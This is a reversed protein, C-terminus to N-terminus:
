ETRGYNQTFIALDGDGIANDEDLDFAPEFGGQDVLTGWVRGLAALDVFDVVGDGTFDALIGTVSLEFSLEATEILVPRDPGENLSVQVSVRTRGSPASSRVRLPVRVLLGSLQAADTPAAFAWSIRFSDEQQSVQETRNDPLGDVQHPLMKFVKPDLSVQVEGQTIERAGLDVTVGIPVQDGRQVTEPPPPELSLRVSSASLNLITVEGLVWAPEQRAAFGGVTFTVTKGTFSVGSPQVVNIAYNGRSTTTEAIVEGDITVTVVTGDPPTAGDISAAGFFRHPPTQASAEMPPLMTALVVVALLALLRFKSM